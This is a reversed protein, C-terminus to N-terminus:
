DFIKGERFDEWVNEFWLEENPIPRVPRWECRLQLDEGATVTGIRDKLEDEGDRFAYDELGPAPVTGEPDLVLYSGRSVGGKAIYERIAELYAVQAGVHDILMYYRILDARTVEAERLRNFQGRAEALAEIVAAEERIIAGTRDMRDRLRNLENVPDFDTAEIRLSARFRNQISEVLPKMQEPDKPQFEAQGAHHAIYQAARWGGVQGSNLASGGPRYVGHTGSVEGIPFFGKINSQWWIDGELGGNNHQACVGIELLEEALDIGNELYLDYAPMNMKQLRELPTGFLAQSKELYVRAEESLADADLLHGAPNRRYDLYVRRGLAITEHYVALDILSSGRGAIRAPNFPWQYGKLFQATLMAGKDPYYDALFETEDRGDADTSIYRPLVQQYSGSLNWRFKLSALGYQSETLNKARVGALLATGTAGGQSKPYVSRQYLGAPGGVAYVLHRCQFVSLGCNGSERKLGVAGRIKGQETLISIIRTADFVPINRTRTERELRETMLRSTLPGVSTARQTEDHDTQYGAHEGWATHPFPVGIQVLHAFELWSLGAECLAIDGDMAGGDFLTRAMGRVSDGAEGALSLKYYTQKDSGTNRSTGRKIGETVMALDTHGRDYLHVACNFAAAGTGIIVTDFTRM